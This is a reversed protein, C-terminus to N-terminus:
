NTQLQTILRDDMTSRVEFIAGNLVAGTAQGREAQVRNTILLRGDTAQPPEAPETPPETSPTPPQTEPEIPRHTVNIETIRDAQIRASIRSTDLIFGTPVAVVRLFYDGIPLPTSAEGFQNTVLQAVFTDDMANHVEFIVGQLLEGTSHVRSTVLLRGFAPSEDQPPPEPEDQPILFQWITLLTLQSDYITFSHRAGDLIYGQPVVVARLFYDGAPLLVNVEGFLDTTVTAVLEDGLAHRIEFVTGALRQGTSNAISTALLWGTPEPDPPIDINTDNSDDDNGNDPYGNETDENGNEHEGNTYCPYYEYPPPCDLEAAQVPRSIFFALALGLLLYLAIQLGGKLASGMKINKKINLDFVGKM